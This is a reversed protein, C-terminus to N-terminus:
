RDIAPFTERAIVILRETGRVIVDHLQAFMELLSVRPDVDLVILETM